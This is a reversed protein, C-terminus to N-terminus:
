DQELGKIIARIVSGAKEVLEPDGRRNAGGVYVSETDPAALAANRAESRVTELLSLFAGRTKEPEPSSVIASRVIAMAEQIEREEYLARSKTM